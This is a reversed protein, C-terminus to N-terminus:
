FEEMMTKSKNQVSSQGSYFDVESNVLELIDWGATNFRLNTLNTNLIQMRGVHTDGEKSSISASPSEGDRPPVISNLIYFYHFLTTTILNYRTVMYMNDLVIKYIYNNFNDNKNQTIMPTNTTFRSNKYLYEEVESTSGMNTEINDTNDYYIRFIRFNKNTISVNIQLKNDTISDIVKILGIRNATTEQIQADDTVMIVHNMAFQCNEFIYRTQTHNESTKLNSGGQGGILSNKVSTTNALGVSGLISNNIVTDYSAQHENFAIGDNESFVSVNEITTKFSNERGSIELGHRGSYFQSNSINLHTGMYSAFGYSESSNNFLSRGSKVRTVVTNFHVELHFCHNFNDAFVNDIVSDKSYFLSIGFRGLPLPNIAEISLNKIEVTIPNYVSILCGTPIPYPFAGSIRIRNESMIDTITFTGGKKYYFRSSNFQESSQFYVLQGIKLDVTNNVRIINSHNQIPEVTNKNTIFQGKFELGRGDIDPHTQKVNTLIKSGNGDISIRGEKEISLMDDLLYTGNKELVLTENEQLDNLAQEFGELSDTEGTPDVNYESLPIITSTRSNVYESTEDKFTNLNTEIDNIFDIMVNDISIGNQNYVNEMLTHPFLNNWQERDREKMQINKNVM